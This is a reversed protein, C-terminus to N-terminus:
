ASQLLSKNQRIKWCLNTGLIAVIVYSTSEKVSKFDSSRIECVTPRVVPGLAYWHNRQLFHLFIPAGVPSFAMQSAAFLALRYFLKAILFAHHRALCFFFGESDLSQSPKQRTPPVPISGTVGATHLCHEVASSVV